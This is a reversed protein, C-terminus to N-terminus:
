CMEGKQIAVNKNPNVMGDIQQEVWKAGDSVGQIVGNVCGPTIACVVAPILLVPPIPIVIELGDMDTYMVPSQNAYNFTNLGGAIGIPDSSIYRGIAPNYYRNWNYFLASEADYYQGPMRLNVTRSGSTAGVGFGDGAWSWVQTGSSDTGFRPTGLHDTHLYTLVEPSGADVQALPAGNLYVYERVFNGSSDYEGYLLGGPGYSYYTTTGGAVKKSRRRQSDYTYVGGTTNVTALEGAANWGYTNVGDDTIHGSADYSYSDSGVASIRNSTSPVSTSVSTGDDRSLRNSTADYTYTVSTGPDDTELRNLADYTFTEAGAQTINGNDDTDYTHSYLSSVARATPNYDQDYSASFSLGNGYTM